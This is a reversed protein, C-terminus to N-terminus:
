KLFMERVEGIYYLSGFACILQDPSASRVARDVAEKITDNRTVNECYSKLFGELERAPLARESNPTIAIFGDAIPAICEVLTKYDKDRLVGFIFIKKREPFYKQLAEALVQAGEVNHAGDILVLPNRSVVELRGSWRAKLLGNRLAAEPITYGKQNLLLATNLAMVANKVQHEGLLRTTIGKLEKYDFTQGDISFEGWGISDFDVRQLRAGRDSCVEAFVTDVEEEQPFLLVDCGEKIIGAKEYAIKPLTDGLINMHDYSITTIVAVAPREIVNTADFRGGLGVELVVIDCKKEYFYQFGIATVIEFETPHNRGQELLIDVKSKVYETIRCLEQESIEEQNVKMRETFRQIYPSTYIGVRYGAEMLISSTFAVTSGKGNTGAVHVYKLKKHPNGMLDLLDTINHLGLKSGFKLTGHIYNLAEEYNM